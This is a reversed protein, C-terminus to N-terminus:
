LAASPATLGALLKKKALAAKIAASAKARSEPSRKRGQGAESILRRAEETHRYGRCAASLKQRTEESVPHGRLQESVLQRAQPNKQFYNRRAKATKQRHNEVKAVGLNALRMAKIAAPNTPQKRRSASMKMRVEPTINAMGDGGDTGNVLEAGCSRVFAIMSVEADNADAAPVIELEVFVPVAGRSRLNKLWATRRCQCKDRMHAAIRTRPSRTTKGIYRLVRTFPDVLGYIIANM